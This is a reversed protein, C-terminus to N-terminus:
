SEALKKMKRMEFKSVSDTLEVNIGFLAREMEKKKLLWETYGMQVLFARFYSPNMKLIDPNSGNRAQYDILAKLLEECMMNM